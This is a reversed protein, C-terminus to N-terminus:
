RLLRPVVLMQPLLVFSGMGNGTSAKHRPIVESSLSYALLAMLLGVMTGLVPPGPGLPPGPHPPPLPVSTIWTVLTEGLALESCIRVRKPERPFISLSCRKGGSSEGKGTEDRAQETLNWSGSEATTVCCRVFVTNTSLAKITTGYASPTIGLSVLAKDRNAGASATAPRRGPLPSRGVGLGSAWIPGTGNAAKPAGRKTRGKSCKPKRACVQVRLRKSCILQQFKHTSNIGLQIM